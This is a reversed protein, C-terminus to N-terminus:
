AAPESMRLMSLIRRACMTHSESTMEPLVTVKAQCEGKSSGAILPGPCEIVGEYMVLHGSKRAEHEIEEAHAGRELAEIHDICRKECEMSFKM